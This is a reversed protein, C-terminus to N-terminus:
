YVITVIITSLLFAAPSIACSDSPYDDTQILDVQIMTFDSVDMVNM